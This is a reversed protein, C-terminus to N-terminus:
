GKLPMKIIFETGKGAESIVEISGNYLEVIHKVITLGLGTGGQSRSRGKDVRYFREFLRPLADKPIGIGNDKVSIIVDDNDVICKVNVEGGPQTYKIANDIINLLMQKIRNKNIIMIPMNKQVNKLLYIDKTSSQKNLFAIVESIIDEMYCPELNVDGKINQLESLQLIDNILSSLRECEQEIIDLFRYSVEKDEMAGDKLTEIFGRISTLPTKLEHTANSVFDYGMQEFKKLETIDYVTAFCGLIKKDDILSRIPSVSVKIIKKEDEGLTTEVEEILMDEISQRILKNVKSDRILEIIKKGQVESLKYKSEFIKLLFPNTFVVRYDTDVIIVGISINEFGSEISYKSDELNNIKGELRDLMNNYEGAMIGLFDYSDVIVRGKMNEDKIRQSNNIIDKIPKLIDKEFLIKLIFSSILVFIVGFLSYIVITKNMERVDKLPMSIHIYVDKNNVQTKSMMHLTYIDVEKNYVLNYGSGEKKADIFEPLNLFNINNNLGKVKEGIVIGKEDIFSVNADTDNSYMKALDEYNTNTNVGQINSKILNINTMLRDRANATLIYKFLQISFFGVLISNILIIVMYVAFIRIFHNKNM